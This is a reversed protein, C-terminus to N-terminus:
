ALAKVDNAALARFAPNKKWEPHQPAASKLQDIMFIFQFYLPQEAWLTGDNDFVAIRDEPPVFTSAGPTTVDTVFKIIAEKPAGDNWSVLSEAVSPTTNWLGALTFVCALGVFCHLRTRRVISHAAHIDTKM